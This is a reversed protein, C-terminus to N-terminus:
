RHPCRVRRCRPRAPRRGATVVHPASSTVGQLTHEALSESNRDRAISSDWKESGKDNTFVHLDWNSGGETRLDAGAVFSLIDTYENRLATGGAHDESFWSGTFFFSSRASIPTEIKTTFNEFQKHAPEDVLGRDDPHWVYYGDTDYYNGSVGVAVPGLVDSAFLNLNM